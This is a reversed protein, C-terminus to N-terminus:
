CRSSAEGYGGGLERVVAGEEGAEVVTGFFDESLFVVIGFDVVLEVRESIDV